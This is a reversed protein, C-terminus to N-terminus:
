VKEKLSAELADVLATGYDKKEPTEVEIDTGKAWLEKKREVLTDTLTEFIEGDKDLDADVIKSALDVLKADTKIKAQLTVEETPENRDSAFSIAVAHLLDGKAYIAFTKQRGRLIFKAIAAVKKKALVKQILALSEVQGAKTDPGIYYAGTAREFPIKSVPVFSQIKIREKLNTPVGDIEEIISQAETKKIETEEILKGNFSRACNNRGGVIEETDKIRYVQEVPEGKPGCLSLSVDSSSSASYVKVPASVQGFQLTTNAISKM